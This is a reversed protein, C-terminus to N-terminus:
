LFVPGDARREGFGVDGYFVIDYAVNESDSVFALITAVM